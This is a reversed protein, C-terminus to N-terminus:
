SEETNKQNLRVNITVTLTSNDPSLVADVKEATLRQTRRFYRCLAGEQARVGYEALLRAKAETYTMGHGHSGGTTLWATLQQKVHLPLLDLPSRIRIKQM